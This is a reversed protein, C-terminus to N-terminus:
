APVAWIQDLAVPLHDFSDIMLDARARLTDSAHYGWGVAIGAVGAARAMDMDYSTDGIMVTDRPECGTEAMATEIMSPHPKSPHNDAVQRTVFVGDLSHMEILADLGRRSKGTAVGLLLDDRSALEDLVARAGPYFPSRMGAERHTKFAAKYSDVLAAQVARSTGGALRAMAHDLSLGVINLTESRAPAAINQSAFAADMAAVISGQSDILTGDVDFLVLKLTM